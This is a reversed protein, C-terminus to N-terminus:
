KRAKIRVTRRRSRGASNVCVDIREEKDIAGLFADLSASDSFDVALYRINEIGDAKAQRNLEAIADPNTGTLILNANADRFADAIAAGIGRTAGTVLVTRGAFDLQM